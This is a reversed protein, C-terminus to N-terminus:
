FPPQGLSCSPTSRLLRMRAVATGLMSLGARCWGQSPVHQWRQLPGRYPLGPGCFCAPSHNIQESPLRASLGLLLGQQRSGSAGTAPQLSWTQEWLLYSVLLPLITILYSGFGSLCTLTVPLHVPEPPFCPHHLSLPTM